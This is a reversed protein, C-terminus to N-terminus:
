PTVVRTRERGERISSERNSTTRHRRRQHSSSSSSAHTTVDKKSEDASRHRSRSSDSVDLGATTASAPYRSRSRVTPIAGMPYQFQATHLSQRLRSDSSTYTQPHHNMSSTRISAVEADNRKPHNGVRRSSSPHTNSTSSSHLSRQEEMNLEEEDHQPLKVTRCQWPNNLTRVFHIMPRENWETTRRTPRFFRVFITSSPYEGDADDGGGQMFGSAISVSRSGGSCQSDIDQQGLNEDDDDEGEQRGEDGQRRRRRHRGLIMLEIEELSPNTLSAINRGGGGLEHLSLLVLM